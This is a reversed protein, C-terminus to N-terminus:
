RGYKEKLYAEKVQETEKDTLLPICGLLEALDDPLHYKQQMAKRQFEMSKKWAKLAANQESTSNNNRDM